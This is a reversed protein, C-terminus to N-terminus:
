MVCSSAKMVATTLCVALKISREIMPHTLSLLAIPAIPSLLVPWASFFSVMEVGAMWEEVTLENERAFDHVHRILSAMVKRVRPSAKPGTANIVNDTFEKDFRHTERTANTSEVSRRNIHSNAEGNQDENATAQGPDDDELPLLPVLQPVEAM